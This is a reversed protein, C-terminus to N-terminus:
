KHPVGNKSLWEDLQQRNRTVESYKNLDDAFNAEINKIAEMMEILCDTDGPYSM